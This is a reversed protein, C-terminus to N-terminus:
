TMKPVASGGEGWLPSVPFSCENFVIKERTAKLCLGRSIRFLGLSGYYMEMKQYLRVVGVGGGAFLQTDASPM